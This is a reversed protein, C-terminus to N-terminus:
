QVIVKYTIQENTKNNSVQVLYVGAPLADMSLYRYRTTGQVRVPVLQGNANMVKILVEDNGQPLQVIVTGQTLTPYVLVAQRGSCNIIILREGSYTSRGDADVQKIRYYNTGFSANRDVAQYNKSQSSYGAATIRTISNFNTGNTSQQVEFYATHEESSTTWDLQVVCGDKIEATFSQWQLPLVFNISGIALATINVGPPIIGSLTSNETNGSATAGGSLDIWATGNWGVLRLSSTTAFSSMNPISVTVGLNDDDGSVLIWDWFGVPSVSTVPSQVANISHTAVDSPDSISSPDGAFWATSIESAIAPVNMSVTRIDTGSGVPYVFADNGIKSVYGNVHQADSNGGSYGAGNEFRLAGTQHNNRITTTIGNSFTATNRVNAGDTNTINIQDIAGNNLILNFFFPRASGGIEQAGTAGLPGLFQDTHGATANYVGNNIFTQLSPGLHDFVGNNRGNFVGNTSSFWQTQWDSILDGDNTVLGDNYFQARITTVSVLITTLVFLIKKM